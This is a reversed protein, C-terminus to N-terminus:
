PETLQPPQSEPTRSWSARQSQYYWDKSYFMLSGSNPISTRDKEEVPFLFPLLYYGDDRDNFVVQM